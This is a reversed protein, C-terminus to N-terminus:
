GSYKEPTVGPGLRSNSVLLKNKLTKVPQRAPWDVTDFYHIFFQM